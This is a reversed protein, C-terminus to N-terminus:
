AVGDLVLGPLVGALKADSRRREQLLAQAKATARATADATRAQSTKHETSKLEASKVETSKVEGAKVEAINKNLAEVMQKYEAGGAAGPILDGQRSLNGKEDQKFVGMSPLSAVYDKGGEQVALGHKALFEKSYDNDLSLIKAGKVEQALTPLEKELKKCPACWDAGFKIVLPVGDRKAAAAAKDYLDEMTKTIQAKAAEGQPGDQRAGAYLEKMSKEDASYLSDGTLSGGTLDKIAKDDMGLENLRKRNEPKDFYGPDKKAASQLAGEGATSLDKNGSENGLEILKEGFQARTKAPANKLAELQRVKEQLGNVKNALASAEGDGEAGSKAQFEKQATELEKDAAARERAVATQDIKDALAIAGPEFKGKENKRGLFRDVIEEKTKAKNGAALQEAIAKDSGEADLPKPEEFKYKGQYESTYQRAYRSQDSLSESIDGGWHTSVVRDLSPKGDPGAKVSELSTFALNDGNTEHKIWDRWKGADPDKAVKDKDVFVFQMGPNQEKLKQMKDVLEQTDRTNQSGVIFAVGQGNKAAEKVAEGANEYGYPTLKNVASSFQEKNWTNEKPNITRGGDM